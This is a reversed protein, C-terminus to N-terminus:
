RKTPDSGPKCERDFLVMPTQSSYEGMRMYEIHKFKLLLEEIRRLGEQVRRFHRMKNENTSDLERELMELNGHIVMLPQNIEHNATVAMAYVSNRRELQRIEDQADQLRQYAEELAHNKNELEQNRQRYMQTERENREMEFQVQLRAVQDSLRTNFLQNSIEFAKSMAEAAEKYQGTDYLFRYENRFAILRLSQSDRSQLLEHAKHILEQAKDRDGLDLHMFALNSVAHFEVELLDHRRAYALAKEIYQRGEDFSKLRLTANGANLYGMALSRRRQHTGDLLEIAELYHELAVSEQDHDSYYNGLNILLAGRAGDNDLLRALEMAKHTYELFSDFNHVAFYYAALNHCSSRESEQLGHEQSLQLSRQYCELAEDMRFLDKNVSGLNNLIACITEADGYREAAQLGRQLLVLAKGLEDRNTLLFAIAQCSKAVLLDDGIREGLELAEHNFEICRNYQALHFYLYGLAPILQILVDDLGNERAVDWAQEFLPVSKAPDSARLEDGQKRLIDIRARTEQENWTSTADTKSTM